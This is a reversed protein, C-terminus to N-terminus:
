KERIFRIRSGKPSLELSDLLVKILNLIGNGDDLLRKRILSFGELKIPDAFFQNDIQFDRTETELTSLVDKFLFNMQSQIADFIRSGVDERESM